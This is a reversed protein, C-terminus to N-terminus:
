KYRHEGLASFDATPSQRRSNTCKRSLVVGAALADGRRM